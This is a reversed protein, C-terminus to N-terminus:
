KCFPSAGLYRQCFEPWESWQDSIPWNAVIVLALVLCALFVIVPVAKRSRSKGTEVDLEDLRGKTERIMKETEELRGGVEDLRTLVQPALEAWSEKEEEKEEVSVSEVSYKM